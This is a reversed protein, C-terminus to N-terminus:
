GHERDARKDALEVPCFPSDGSWVARYTNSDFVLSSLNADCFEAVRISDCERQILIAKPGLLGVGILAKLHKECDMLSSTARSAPTNIATYGEWFLTSVPQPSRKQFRTNSHHPLRSLIAKIVRSFPHNLRQYLCCIEGGGIRELKELARLDCIKDVSEVLAVNSPEEVHRAHLGAPDLNDAKAQDVIGSSQAIGFAFMCPRM